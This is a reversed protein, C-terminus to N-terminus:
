FHSCDVIKCLVGSLFTYKVAGVNNREEVLGGVHLYSLSAYLIDDFLYVVVPCRHPINSDM